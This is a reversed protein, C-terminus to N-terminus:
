LSTAGGMDFLRPHRAGTALTGPPAPTTGMSRGFDIVHEPAVEVAHCETMLREIEDVAAQRQAKKLPILRPRKYQFPRSSFSYASGAQAQKTSSSEPGLLKQVREPCSQFRAAIPNCSNGRVVLDVLAQHNEEDSMTDILCTNNILAAGTLGAQALRFWRHDVGQWTNLFAHAPQPPGEGPFGKTSDFRRLPFPSHYSVVGRAKTPRGAGRPSEPATLIFFV